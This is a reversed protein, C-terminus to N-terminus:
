TLDGAVAFINFAEAKEASVYIQANTDNLILQTNLTSFDIETHFAAATASATTAVVHIEHLLRKTTGGDPSAFLRLMGATTTVAAQIAIRFLMTGASVGSILLTSGTGDRAGANAANIQVMEFRPTSVFKPDAAM